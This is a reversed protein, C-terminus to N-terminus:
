ASQARRAEVFALAADIRALSRERGVLWLTKEISPSMATGTLAAAAIEEVAQHLSEPLWPDVGSLRERLARLPELVVPRLHKKAAQEEFGDPEAFAFVSKQAMELLTKARDRQVDVIDELAPGAAVDLGLAELRPRLAQALRGAEGTHIYHQNLWALKDNDFVSAARNVDSVDFLEYLEERSFIEQDGHSWGLRAIYNVLAEPLIGEDRFQTVSVAGHRKSLKQGDPGLIMPVHAYRPPTGGLARLINMQRPTNNVHDDGRIVDTIEMELDDVVVCFNYTPTGDPRAIVLDDLEANAFIMRGKVLDDVVVEGETPNRFRVVPEVGPRPETRARCRGDYRPKDGRARQAERMADLEEKTCYCLYAQGDGLLRDVHERYRDTRQSQYHPGEDWDLGLWELGEFITRVSEETSRERDTDEIRLVFQGGHHRAHLLCFLATRAGGVHLYGTPSPAFRTRVSM